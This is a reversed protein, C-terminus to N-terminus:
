WVSAPKQNESRAKVLLPAAPDWNREPSEGAPDLTEVVGYTREADRDFLRQFDEGDVGEMYSRVFREAEKFWQKAKMTCFTVM